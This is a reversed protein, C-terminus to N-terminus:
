SWLTFQCVSLGLRTPLLEPSRRVSGGLQTPLSSTDEQIILSRWLGSSAWTEKRYSIWSPFAGEWTANPELYLWDFTQCRSGASRKWMGSWYGGRWSWRRM